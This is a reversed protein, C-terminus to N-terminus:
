LEKLGKSIVLSTAVEFSVHYGARRWRGGLWFPFAHIYPEEGDAGLGFPFLMYIHNKRSTM